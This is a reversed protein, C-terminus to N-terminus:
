RPGIKIADCPFKMSIGGADAQARECATGLL